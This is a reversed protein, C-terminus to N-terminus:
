AIFLSVSLSCQAPSCCAVSLFWCCFISPIKVEASVKNGKCEISLVSVSFLTVPSWSVKDGWFETFFLAIAVFLANDGSRMITQRRLTWYLYKRSVRCLTLHARIISVISICYFYLLFVLSICYFYGSFSGVHPITPVYLPSLSASCLIYMEVNLNVLRM